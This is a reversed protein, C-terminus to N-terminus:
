KSGRAGGRDYGREERVGEYRKGERLGEGNKPVEQAEEDRECWRLGRGDM